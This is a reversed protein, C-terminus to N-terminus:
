NDLNNIGLLCVFMICIHMCAHGALSMIWESRGPYFGTLSFYICTYMCGCM